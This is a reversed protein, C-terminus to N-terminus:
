ILYESNGDIFRLLLCPPAPETAGCAVPTSPRHGFACISLGSRRRRTRAALCMHRTSTHKSAQDIQPDSPPSCPARKHQWRRTRRGGRRWENICALVLGCSRPPPPPPAAGSLLLLASLTCLLRTDADGHRTESVWVSCTVWESLISSLPCLPTCPIYMPHVRLHVHPTCPTYMPHVHPTCPTCLSTHM